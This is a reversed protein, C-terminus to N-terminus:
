HTPTRMMEDPRAYSYGARPRLSVVFGDEMSAERSTDPLLWALLTVLLKRIPGLDLPRAPGHRSSHPPAFLLFYMYLM